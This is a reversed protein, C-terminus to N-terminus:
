EKRSDIFKEKIRAFFDDDGLVLGSKDHVKIIDKEKGTNDMIFQRYLKKAKPTNRDFMSLIYCSLHHLYADQTELILHYHNDMLVYSHFAARYSTHAANLLM